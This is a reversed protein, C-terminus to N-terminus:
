YIEILRCQTDEQKHFVLLHEHGVVSITVGDREEIYPLGFDTALNILRRLNITTERSFSEKNVINEEGDYTDITYVYDM